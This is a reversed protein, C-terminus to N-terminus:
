SAPASGTPEFTTTVCGWSYRLITGSAHSCPVTRGKLLFAKDASTLAGNTILPLWDSLTNDGGAALNVQLQGQFALPRSSRAPSLVGDGEARGLSSTLRLPNLTVTTDSISGAVTLQQISISGLKMLMKLEPREPVTLRSLHLAFAGSTVSRDKASYMLQTANGALVGGDLGISSLQPHKDLTLDSISIDAQPAASLMRSVTATARGGYLQAVLQLQPSLTLVSIPSLTAVVDHLELKLAPGPVTIRKSGLPVQLAPGPVWVEILEARASLFSASVGRWAIQAGAARAGRLADQLLFTAITPWLAVTASLLAVTVLIVRKRKSVVRKM